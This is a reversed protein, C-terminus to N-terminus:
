KVIKTMKHCHECKCRNKKEAEVVLARLGSLQNWLRAEDNCFQQIVWMPNLKEGCLACEVYGLQPDLLFKNHQCNFRCNKIKIIPNPNQDSM